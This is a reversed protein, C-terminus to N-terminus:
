NQEVPLARRAQLQFRDEELSKSAIDHELQLIQSALAQTIGTAAQALLVFYTRMMQATEMGAGWAMLTAQQHEQFRQGPALDGLDIYAERMQELAPSLASDANRAIEITRQRSAARNLEQSKRDLVDRASNYQRAISSVEELYEDQSNGGCGLTFTALLALVILFACRKM